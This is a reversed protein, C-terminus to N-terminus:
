ASTRAAAPHCEISDVRDPYFVVHGEIEGVAPYPSRYEWVANVSADGGVPAERLTLARQTTEFPSRRTIM